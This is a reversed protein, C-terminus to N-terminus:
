KDAKAEINQLEFNWDLTAQEPVPGGMGIGRTFAQWSGSEEFIEDVLPDLRKYKKQNSGYLNGLTVHAEWTEYSRKSIEALNKSCSEDRSISCIDRYLDQWSDRDPESSPQQTPELIAVVLNSRRPPFVKLGTVQFSFDTKQHKIGNKDDAALCFGSEELRTSIRSHWDVLEDKPIECLVEGAFFLTMHLSQRSRPKFRLLKRQDQPKSVPQEPNASETPSPILPSKETSVASQRDESSQEKAVTQDAIRKQIELSYGYLRDITADDLVVKLYSNFGPRYARKKRQPKQKKPARAQPRHKDDGSASNDLHIRRKPFCCVRKLCSSTDNSSMFSIKTSSRSLASKRFALSKQLSRGLLQFSGSTPALFSVACFPSWLHFLYLLSSGRKNIIGM